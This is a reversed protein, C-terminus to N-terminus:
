GKLLGAKRLAKTIVTGPDFAGGREPQPQKRAAPRTVVPVSPRAGTTAPTAAARTASVGSSGALQSTAASPEAATNAGGRARRPDGLFRRYPLKVLDGDRPHVSRRKGCQRRRKRSRDADWSVNRHHHLIGGRAARLRRALGPAPLRGRSGSILSCGAPRPGGDMAERTRQREGTAGTADSSGHWISVRPFSGSHPAARRVLDGWSEASRSKGQFMSDLAEQVNGAGGYPLGAIIAGAAFVEPYTAMMVAAMAGGASLGTIYIRTRDLSHDEVAREIMQRISLAEGRDRTTDQPQFWNFCSNPNNARQQEPLLLAFGHRDALTSWGAGHDYGAATQTCGHLIVVLPAGPPLGDPVYTLMRVNGPNSGFSTTEVLRLASGSNRRAGDAKASAARLADFQRRYQALKATTQKLGAM